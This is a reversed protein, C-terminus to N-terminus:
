YKPALLGFAATCLVIEITAYEKSGIIASEYLYPQSDYICNFSNIHKKEFFFNNMFLFFM